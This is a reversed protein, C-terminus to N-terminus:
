KGKHEGHMKDGWKKDGKKSMMFNQMEAPTVYKDNNADAKEFYKVAKEGRTAKVESMSLKGDKNTDMKNFHMKQAAARDAETLKGDNNADMMKFRAEAQSMFEARTITGDNNADPSMKGHHNAIAATGTLALAAASITLFTTNM